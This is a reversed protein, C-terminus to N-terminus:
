EDINYLASDLKREIDLALSHARLKRAQVKEKDLDFIKRIRRHWRQLWDLADNTLDRRAMGKFSKRRILTALGMNQRQAVEQLREKKDTKMRITIQDTHKQNSMRDIRKERIRQAKELQGRTDLILGMFELLNAHIEQPDEMDEITHYVSRTGHLFEVYTTSRPLARGQPVIEELAHRRVIISMGTKARESETKLIKKQVPKLRIYIVESMKEEKDM